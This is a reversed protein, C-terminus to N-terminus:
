APKYSGGRRTAEAKAAVESAYNKTKGGPLTVIFGKNNAPKKGGCACAM